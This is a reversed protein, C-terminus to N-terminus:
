YFGRHNGPIYNEAGTANLVMNYAALKSRIKEITM